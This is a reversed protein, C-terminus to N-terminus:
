EANVAEREQSMLRDYAHGTMYLKDMNDILEGGTFGYLREAEHLLRTAGRQEIILDRQMDVKDEYDADSLEIERIEARIKIRLEQAAKILTRFFALNKDPVARGARFM